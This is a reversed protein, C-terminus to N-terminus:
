YSKIVRSWITLVVTVCIFSQKGLPLLANVTPATTAKGLLSAALSLDSQSFSIQTYPLEFGYYVSQVVM